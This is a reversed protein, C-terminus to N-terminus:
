PNEAYYDLLSRYSAFEAVIENTLRDWIFIRGDSFIGAIKRDDLSLDIAISRHIENVDIIKFERYRSRVCFEPLGDFYIEGYWVPYGGYPDDVSLCM